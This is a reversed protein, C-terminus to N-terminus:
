GSSLRRSSVASVVELNFRPGGSARMTSRSSRAGPLVRLHLDPAARRARVVGYIEGGPRIRLLAEEYHEQLVERGLGHPYEFVGDANKVPKTAKKVDKVKRTVTEQASVLGGSGFGHGFWFLDGNYTQGATHDQM